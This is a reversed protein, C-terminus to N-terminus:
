RELIHQRISVADGDSAAYLIRGLGPTWPHMLYSAVREGSIVADDLLELEGGARNRVLWTAGNTHDSFGLGTVYEPGYHVRQTVPLFPHPTGGDVPYAWLQDGQPALVLGNWPVGPGDPSGADDSRPWSALVEFADELDADESEPVRIIEIADEGIVFVRDHDLVTVSASDFDRVIPYEWGPRSFAVDDFEQVTAMLGDRASVRELVEHLPVESSQIWQGTSLQLAYVRVLEESAGLGGSAGLAIAWDTSTSPGPLRYLTNVPAPLDVPIPASGDAPYIAPTAGFTFVAPPHTESALAFAAPIDRSTGDPFHQTASEESFVFGHVPLTTNTDLTCALGLDLDRGATGDALLEWVGQPGDYRPGSCLVVDGGVNAAGTPLGFTRPLRLPAGGCNDVLDYRPFRDLVYRVTAADGLDYVEFPGEVNDASLRLLERPADSEDCTSLELPGATSSGCAGLLSLMLPLCNTKKM